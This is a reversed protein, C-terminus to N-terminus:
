SPEKKKIEVVLWFVHFTLVLLFFVKLCQILQTGELSADEFFHRLTKNAFFFGAEFTSANGVEFSPTM